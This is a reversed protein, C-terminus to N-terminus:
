AVKAFCFFRNKNTEVVIYDHGMEKGMYQNFWGLIISLDGGLFHLSLKRFITVM